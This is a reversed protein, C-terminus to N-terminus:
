RRRAHRRANRRAHRLSNRTRSIGAKYGAVQMFGMKGILMVSLDSIDHADTIGLSGCEQVIARSVHNLQAQTIM